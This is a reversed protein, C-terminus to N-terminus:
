KSQSLIKGKLAYSPEPKFNFINAEKKSANQRFGPGNIQQSAYMHHDNWEQNAAGAKARQKEKEFETVINAIYFAFEQIDILTLEYIQKCGYGITPQRYVAFISNKRSPIVCNKSLQIQLIPVRKRLWDFIEHNLVLASGQRPNYPVFVNSTNELTSNANSDHDDSQGNSDNLDFPCAVTSEFKYQINACLKNIKALIRKIRIAFFFIFVRVKLITELSGSLKSLSKEIEFNTIPNAHENIKSANLECYISNTLSDTHKKLTKAKLTWQDHLDVLRHYKYDCSGKLRIFYQGILLVILQSPLLLIKDKLPSGEEMSNTKPYLISKGHTYNDSLAIKKDAGDDSLNSLSKMIQPLNPNITALIDQKSTALAKKNKEAIAPDNLLHDICIILMREFFLSKKSTFFSILKRLKQETHRIFGSKGEEVHLTSGSREIRRLQNSLGTNLATADNIKISILACDAELKAMEEKQKDLIAQRHRVVEYHQKLMEDVTYAQNQLLGTAFVKKFRIQMQSHTIKVLNKSLMSRYWALKDIKKRLIKVDNSLREYMFQLGEYNGEEMEADRDIKALTKRNDKQFGELTQHYLIPADERVIKRERRVEIAQQVRLEKQSNGIRLENLLEQLVTAEVGVKINGIQQRSQFEQRIKKKERNIEILQQALEDLKERESRTQYLKKNIREMGLQIQSENLISKFKM